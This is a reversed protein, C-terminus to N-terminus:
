LFPQNSLRLTPKLLLSNSLGCHAAIDSPFNAQTLRLAETKSLVPKEDVKSETESYRLNIGLNRRRPWEKEKDKGATTVEDKWDM